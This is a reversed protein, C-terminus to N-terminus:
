PMASLNPNQDHHVKDDTAARYDVAAPAIRELGIDCNFGSFDDRNAFHGRTALLFDVGPALNDGRAKDIRM